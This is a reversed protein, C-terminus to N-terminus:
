KTLAVYLEAIKVAGSFPMSMSVHALGNHTRVLRFDNPLAPTRKPPRRYHQKVNVTKGQRYAMFVEILAKRVEAAKETRSLACIVLAQGENLYYAKGPRGRKRPNVTDHRLSSNDDSKLYNTNQPKSGCFLSNSNTATIHVAGYMELEESNRVITTRIDRPREIGLEAALDLDLIRPEDEIACLASTPIVSMTEAKIHQAVSDITATAVRCTSLGTDLRGPLGSPKGGHAVM